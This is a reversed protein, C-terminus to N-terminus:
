LVVIDDNMTLDSAPVLGRNSTLIKHNPTCWIISGNVMVGILDGQYHRKFVETVTSCIAEGNNQDYSKVLDGVKVMEIPKTNGDTSQIPTGKPFCWPCGGDCWDTVKLDMSEPFDYTFHDDDNPTWKGDVYSGAERFRTGDDFMVTRHNGNVYDALIAM